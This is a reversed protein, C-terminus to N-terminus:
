LHDLVVAQFKRKSLLYILIFTLLFPLFSIWHFQSVYNPIVCARFMDLPVNLPNMQNVEKLFGQPFYLIPLGWFMIQSILRVLPSIDKLLINLRSLYHLLLHLYFGTLLICLYGLFAGFPNLQGSVYLLAYVPVLTITAHILYQFLPISLFLDLGLTSRKLLSRNDTLISTGRVLLEQLPIWFVLGTLLYSSQDWTQNPHRIGLVLFVTAYISILLLNQLLMWSIGLFSGAYQLAYDRRVLAWIIGFTTM